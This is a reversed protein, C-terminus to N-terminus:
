RARGRNWRLTCRELLVFAADGLAAMVISLALGVVIPTYINENFGNLILQGLGGQGMFATVTVLGVVTVTAVRLGAFIQPTALPLYVRLIQRRPAYGMAIASEAVDAPVSELGVITNRVLILLTYGVLAVEATEITFYGTVPQVLSFLAISPITYLLGAVALIPTRIRRFRWALVGLPVAIACGIGVALASLEAHQGAASLIVGVNQRIWSWRILPNSPAVLTASM